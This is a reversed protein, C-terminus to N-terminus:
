PKACRALMAGLDIGAMTIGTSFSLGPTLTQAESYNKLHDQARGLAYIFRPEGPHAQVEPQCVSVAHTWDTSGDLRTETSTSARIHFAALRECETEADPAPAAASQRPQSAAQAVVAPASTGPPPTTTAPAVGTPASALFVDGVLSSSDWPTQKQDTAALVDGRVRSVMQRVELGPTGVHKLLAATFPSNRGTGDLAINNPQTSYVILSAPATTETRRLGRGGLSRGGQALASTFPNDRCADLIIIATRGSGEMEGQIDSLGITNFRVDALSHISADM